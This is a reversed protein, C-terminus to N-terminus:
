KLVRKIHVYGGKIIFADGKVRVVGQRPMGEKKIHFKHLNGSERKRALDKYLFTVDNKAVFFGWDNCIPGKKFQSGTYL